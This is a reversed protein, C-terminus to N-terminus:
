EKGKNNNPRELRNLNAKLELVRQRDFYRYGNVQDRESTLWGKREWYRVTSASVGLVKAADSVTVYAKGDGM